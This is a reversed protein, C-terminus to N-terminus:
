PYTKAAFLRLGFCCLMRQRKLNQWGYISGKQSSHQRKLLTLSLTSKAIGFEKAIRGKAGHQGSSQKYGEINAGKKSTLSKQKAAM